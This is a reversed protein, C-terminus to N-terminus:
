LDLVRFLFSFSGKAPPVAGGEPKGDAISKGVSQPRKRGLREVPTALGMRSAFSSPAKSSPPGGDSVRLQTSRPVNRMPSTVGTMRSTGGHEFPNNILWIFHLSNKIGLHSIVTDDAVAPTDCVCKLVMRRVNPPFVHM